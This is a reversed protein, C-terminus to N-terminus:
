PKAKAGILRTAKGKMTDFIDAKMAQQDIQRIVRVTTPRDTKTWRFGGDRGAVTVAEVERVWGLGRRMSIIASLCSPDFLPKGGKRARTLYGIQTHM